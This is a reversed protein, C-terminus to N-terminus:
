RRRLFLWVCLGVVSLGLMGVNSFLVGSTLASQSVWGTQGNYTVQQFGAIVNPPDASSVLTGSPIATGLAGSSLLTSPDLSSAYLSTAQNVTWLSM